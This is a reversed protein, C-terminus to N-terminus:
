SEQKTILKLVLMVFGGNTVERHLLMVEDYPIVLIAFQSTIYRGSNTFSTENNDAM